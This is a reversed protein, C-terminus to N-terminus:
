SALATILTRRVQEMRDAMGTNSYAPWTFGGNAVVQV